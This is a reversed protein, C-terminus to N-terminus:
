GASHWRWALAMGAGHWRRALVQTHMALAHCRWALAQWRMAAYAACSLAHCRMGACALAMGACALTLRCALKLSMGYNAHKIVLSCVVQISLACVSADSM